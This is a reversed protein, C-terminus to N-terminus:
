VTRKSKSRALKPSRSKSQHNKQCSVKRRLQKKEEETFFERFLKAQDSQAVAWAAAWAAARAADWTAAWTAAWTADWTAAWTAALEKGTAKGQAFREATEITNRIRPDDPFKSEFIPLVARCFRCALLRSTCEADSALDARLSWLADDLGNTELITVLPIRKKNSWKPGLAATLIQYRDKCAKHKQLEDLTTYHKM